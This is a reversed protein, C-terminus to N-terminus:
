SKTWTINNIGRALNLYRIKEPEVVIFRYHFSPLGKMGREGLSAMIGTFQLIEEFRKRHKHMSVVEARGWVQLGRVRMLGRGGNIRSAISYAVKTNRALNAFKGGGESLIYITLGRTFYGLPTCRPVDDRSTSLYLIDHDKLFQVVEQEFAAVTMAKRLRVGAQACLDKVFPHAKPIRIRSM